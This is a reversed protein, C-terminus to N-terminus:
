FGPNYNIEEIYHYTQIDPGTTEYYNLELISIDYHNCGYGDAWYLITQYKNNNSGWRNLYMESEYYGSVGNSITPPTAEDCSIFILLILIIIKNIKKLQIM